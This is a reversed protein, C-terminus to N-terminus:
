NLYYSVDRVMRAGLESLQLDTRFIPENAAAELMRRLTQPLVVSRRKARRCVEDFYRRGAHEDMVALMSRARRANLYAHPQLVAALLAVALISALARRRPTLRRALRPWHVTM